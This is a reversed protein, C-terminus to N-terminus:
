RTTRLEHSCTREDMILPQAVYPKFRIRAFYMLKTLYSPGLGSVWM